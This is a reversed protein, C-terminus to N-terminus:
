EHYGEEYGMRDIYDSLQSWIYALRNAFEANNAAVLHGLATQLHASAEISEEYAAVNMAKHCEYKDSM